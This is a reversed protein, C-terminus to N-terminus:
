MNASIYWARSENFRLYGGATGAYDDLMHQFFLDRIKTLTACVFRLLDRHTAQYSCSLVHVHVQRYVSWRTNEKYKGFKAAALRETIVVPLAAHDELAYQDFEQLVKSGGRGASDPVKPTSVLPFAYLFRPASLISLVSEFNPCQHATSVRKLISIVAMKLHDNLTKAPRM